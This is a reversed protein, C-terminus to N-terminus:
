ASNTDTLLRRPKPLRGRADEEGQQDEADISGHGAEPLACPQQVLHAAFGLCKFLDWTKKILSM